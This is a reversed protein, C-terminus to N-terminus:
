VALDRALTKGSETLSYRITGDEAKHRLAYGNEVLPKLASCAWSSARAYELGCAEGIQTPTRGLKQRHLEKLVDAQKLTPMKM